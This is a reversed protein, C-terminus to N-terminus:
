AVINDCLLGIGRQLFALDNAAARLLNREIRRRGSSKQRLRSKQSWTPGSSGIEDVEVRIHVESAVFLTM